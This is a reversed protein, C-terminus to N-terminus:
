GIWHFGKAMLGALGLTTAILSGFIIRFDRDHREDIRDLRAEIRGLIEKTSKSIEELVAVRAEMSQTGGGGGGGKSPQLSGDWDSVGRSEFDLIKRETRDKDAYANM